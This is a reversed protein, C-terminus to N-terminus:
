TAVIERVTVRMTFKGADEGDDRLYNAVIGHGGACPDYLLLWQMSQVLFIHLSYSGRGPLFIFVSFRNHGHPFM